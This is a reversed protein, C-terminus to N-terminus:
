AFDQFHGQEFFFCLDDYVVFKLNEAQIIQILFRGM